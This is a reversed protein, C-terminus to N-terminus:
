QNKGIYVGLPEIETTSTSRSSSFLAHWNNGIDIQKPSQTGNLVVIYTSSSATIQLIIVGEPSPLFKHTGLVEAASTPRFAPHSKRLEILQKVQTATSRWAAARVWDFQNASDGANYSNHNGGKTRGIEPGGELFAIGPAVLIAASALVTAKPRLGESLGSLAFKDNLTLNDHASIYNLSEIPDGAFTAVSGMLGTKVAEINQGTGIFGPRPGDLEGRLANRFDDNFVAVQMGRQASKGYRIPGGGTWPEGYIVADPRIERCANAWDRVSDPNFMGILDFRYGDLKYERLWFQLSERVYKRAMTREDAWANGVGSENLQEGRDNTRFYYYPVTSDFASRDGHTPVTHNYVVDLIVRLGAKHLAQIMAKCDRITTIPNAPNTSYQEEPVNFLTTEYGWNYSQSHDPNFNQFPLIHVDTVGLWKLYDIGTPHGQHKTGTQTFGLYKGRWEPKIGSAPDITFDRVHLEYIISEAPSRNIKPLARNWGQPDTKRLDVIVSWMSDQTAAPAYIDAATRTQGYSQFRYRFAKGHHNGPVTLYWVGTAGRKMPIDAIVDRPDKFELSVSTSVPSWVKFTTKTPSYQIGLDPKSYIFASDNLVDRLIGQSATSTSTVEIPSMLEVTTLPRALTLAVSDIKRTVQNTLIPNQSPPGIQAPSTVRVDIKKADFDVEITVRGQRETVKLPINQGDRVFNLGYNESWSGGRAVKFEYDGKPVTAKFEYFGARVQTMLTTDDNPDWNNGGLAPAFSGPLTVKDPRPATTPTKAYATPKVSTVGVTKGGVRLTFNNPNVTPVPTSLALRVETRSDIFALSPSQSLLLALTPLIM